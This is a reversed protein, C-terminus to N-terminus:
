GNVYGMYSMYRDADLLSIHWVCKINLSKPESSQNNQTTHRYGAGSIGHPFAATITASQSDGGGCIKSLAFRAATAKLAFASGGHETLISKFAGIKVAHTRPWFPTNPRTHFLPASIRMIGFIRAIASSANLYTLAPQFTKLIKNCIHAASWGLSIRNITNIIISIVFWGITSPRSCFSLGSIGGGIPPDSYIASSHTESIPAYLKINGAPLWKFHCAGAVALWRLKWRNLGGNLM